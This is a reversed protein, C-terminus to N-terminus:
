IACLIRWNKKKMKKKRIQEQDDIIYFCVLFDRVDQVRTKKKEKWHCDGLDRTVAPPTSGALLRPVVCCAGHLREAGTVALLRQPCSASFVIWSVSVSGCLPCMRCSCGWDLQDVRVLPVVLTFRIYKRLGHWIWKFERDALHTATFCYRIFLYLYTYFYGCFQIKQGPIDLHNFNLFFGNISFMTASNFLRENEKWLAFLHQEQWSHLVWSCDGRWLLSQKKNHM